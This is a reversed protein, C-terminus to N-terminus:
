DLNLKKSLKPIIEKWIESNPHITITIDNQLIDTKKYMRRGMLEETTVVTIGEKELNKWKPSYLINEEIKTIELNLSRILDASDSYILLIFKANPFKKRIENNIERLISCIFQFINDEFDGNYLSNLYIRNKLALITYFSDFKTYNQNKLIGYKRLYYWRYQRHKKIVRSPQRYSYTYIVYEPPNNSLKKINKQNKLELLSYEIGETCWSWNYVPRKTYESLQYGFTETKNLGLGYTYSDGLLLVPKKKYKLNVSSRGDNIFFIPSDPAPKKYNTYLHNDVIFGKELTKFKNYDPLKLEKNTFITSYFYTESLFVLLIILIINTLIILFLKKINRM